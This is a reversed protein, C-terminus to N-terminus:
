LSLIVCVNKRKTRPLWISLIMRLPNLDLPCCAQERRSDGSSLRNEGRGAELGDRPEWGCSEVRLEEQCMKKKGSWSEQGEGRILVRTIMGPGNLYDLILQKDWSRSSLWMQLTGKAVYIVMNVLELTWSMSIQCPTPLMIWGGVIYDPSEQHNLLLSDVQQHLLRPNSEQTLLIGQLLFHHGVETNKGPFIWHPSSVPPSDDM